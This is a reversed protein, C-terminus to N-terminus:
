CDNQKLTNNEKVKKGADTVPSFDSMGNHDIRTRNLSPADNCIFSAKVNSLIYHGAQIAAFNFAEKESQKLKQHYEQGHTLFM